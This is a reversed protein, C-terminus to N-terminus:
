EFLYSDSNEIYNRSIFNCFSINYKLIYIIHLLLYLHSILASLHTQKLSSYFSQEKLLLTEFVRLNFQFINVFLLITFNRFLFHIFSLNM